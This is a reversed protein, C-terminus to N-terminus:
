QLGIRAITEGLARAVVSVVAVARGYPMRKPGVVAVACSVRSEVMYNAAVLACDALAPHPSEAGISISVEGAPLHALIRRLPAREEFVHMVRRAKAVDAFEHQELIHAAGGVYIRDQAIDAVAEYVADAAAGTARELRAAAITLRVEERSIASLARGALRHNLAQTLGRCQSATIRTPLAALAHQARGSDAVAVVLLHNAGVPAMEIHRLTDEQADPALAVAAQHTLRSLLQCTAELIPEIQLHTALAEDIWRREAATPQRRPMLYDVYYRYGADTPVRGASTHPHDLYGSHELAAMENRVTAPSVDGLREAVAASSVPEAAATYMDVVAALVQSKRGDLLMM